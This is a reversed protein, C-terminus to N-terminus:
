RMFGLITGAVLLTVLMNGINLWFMKMKGGWIANGLALPVVFGLWLGFANAIGGYVGKHISSVIYWDLVFFMIFSGVFQLFYALPMKKKEAEQKEKSWENMGSVEMFMKGFLPGYWISGILVSAVTSILVAWYNIQM